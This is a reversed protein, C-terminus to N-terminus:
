ADVLKWLEFGKESPECKYDKALGDEVLFRGEKHCSSEKAWGGDLVWKEATASPSGASSSSASSASASGATLPIAVAAAGVVLGVTFRSRWSKM